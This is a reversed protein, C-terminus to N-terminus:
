ILIKMSNELNLYGNKFLLKGLSSNQNQKLWDKDESLTKLCPTIKHMLAVDNGYSKNSRKWEGKNNKTIYWLDDEFKTYVMLYGIEDNEM